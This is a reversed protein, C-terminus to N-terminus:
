IDNRRTSGANIATSATTTGAVALAAPGSPIHCTSSLVPWMLIMFHPAWIHPMIAQCFVGFFSSFLGLAAICLLGSTPEAIRIPM